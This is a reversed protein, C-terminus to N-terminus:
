GFRGPASMMSAVSVDREGAGRVSGGNVGDRLMIGRKASGPASKLGSAQQKLNVSRARDRRARIQALAAERSIPTGPVDLIEQGDIDSMTPLHIPQTQARILSAPTESYSHQSSTEDDDRRLPVTTTTTFTQSSNLTPVQHATQSRFHQPKSKPTVPFFTNNAPSASTSKSFALNPTSKAPVLPSQPRSESRINPRSQARRHTSRPPSTGKLAIRTTTHITPPEGLPTSSRADASVQPSDPVLRIPSALGTSRVGLATSPRAPHRKPPSFDFLDIEMPAAMASEARPLPPPMPRSPRQSSTSTSFTFHQNSQSPAPEVLMQTLEELVATAEPTNDRSDTQEASTGPLPISIAEEISAQEAARAVEKPAPVPPLTKAKEDEEIRRKKATHRQQMKAEYDPDHIYRKGKKEARRCECIQFHCEMHMLEVLEQSSKLQGKYYAVEDYLTSVHDQLTFTEGDLEREGAKFDVFDSFFPREVTSVELACVHDSADVRLKKIPRPTAENEGDVETQSAKRVLEHARMSAGSAEREVRGAWRITNSRLDMLATEKEQEAVKIREKLLEIEETQGAVTYAREFAEQRAEEKKQREHQVEAEKRRLDKKVERLEEAVELQAKEAQFCQKRAKKVEKVYANRVDQSEQKENTLMETLKDIRNATMNLQKKRGELDSKLREIEAKASALSSQSEEYGMMARLHADRKTPSSPVDHRIPTRSPSTQLSNLFAVKEQVASSVSDRPRHSRHPSESLYSHLSPSQPIRQQNMQEASLQRLPTGPASPMKFPSHSPSEMNLFSCDVLVNITM